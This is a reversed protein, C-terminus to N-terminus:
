AQSVEIGDIRIELEKESRIGQQYLHIIRAALDNAAPSEGALGRNACIGDFVRKLFALDHPELTTTLVAPNM